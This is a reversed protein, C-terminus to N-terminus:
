KYNSRIIDGYFNIDGEIPVAAIGSDGTADLTFKYFKGDVYYIWYTGNVNYVMHYKPDKIDSLAAIAVQEQYLAYQQTESLGEWDDAIIDYPVANSYVKVDGAKSNDVVNRWSETTDVAIAEENLAFEWPECYPQRATSVRHMRRGVFCMDQVPFDTLFNLVGTQGVVYDTYKSEGQYMIRAIAYPDVDLSIGRWWQMKQYYLDTVFTYKKRIKDGLYSYAEYIGRNQGVITKEVTTSTIQSTTSPRLNYHLVYELSYVDSTNPVYLSTVKVDSPVQYYGRENIFIKAADSERNLEIMYGLRLYRRDSEPLSAISADSQLIVDGGKLLYVSPQTHFQIKVNDLYIGDYTYGGQVNKGNQTDTFKQDLILGINSALINDKTTPATVRYLQGPASMKLVVEPSDDGGTVSSSITQPSFIGLTDLTSVSNGDAIEYLTASFDYLRRSLTANPTLSIDTVMVVMLGETMSRYLKPEGDNLWKVLEERFGREWLYNYNERYYDASFANQEYISFNLSNDGFYEDKTLFLGNEDEQSSILGTISLQKYNLAINEAFKPYKGGLTDIKTRAVNPKVSSVKYNYRISIQKDGRSLIADYFDPFISVEGNENEAYHLQSLGGISNEYQATYRYWIGSGITTDTFTEDIPGVNKFEYVSEWDRFNSESSARRIYINGEVNNENKITLVLRGYDMQSTDVKFVPDFKNNDGDPIFDAITFKYSKSFVYNNKTTVTVKLSYKTGTAVTMLNLKYEITNPAVSSGTYVQKEGSDIVDGTTDNLIEFSYFSMQEIEDEDAFKVSGSLLLIGHNFAPVADEDLDVFPRLVVRPRSIPRLLLVQSWESFYQTYTRYYEESYQQASSADSFADFRMQFKYYQNNKWGSTELVQAADEEDSESSTVTGKIDTVSLTIFYLGKVTDYEINKFLLGTVSNLANENSTQNVLSIHARKITGLSNYASLSFYIKVDEDLVFAPAFTSPFQPPYLTSALTTAM